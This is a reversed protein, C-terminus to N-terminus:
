GAARAARRRLGAALRYARALAPYPEYDWAGLQPVWTAGFGDKFRYV